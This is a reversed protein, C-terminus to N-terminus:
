CPRASLVPINAFILKMYMNLFGYILKNELYM